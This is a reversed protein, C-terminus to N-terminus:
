AAGEGPKDGIEGEVIQRRRDDVAGLANRQLRQSRRQEPV